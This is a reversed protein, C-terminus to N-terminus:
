AAQKTKKNTVPLPKKSSVTVTVVPKAAELAKALAADREEQKNDTDERNELDIFGQAIKKIATDIMSETTNPVISLVQTEGNGLTKGILLTWEDGTTLTTLGTKPVIALPETLAQGLMENVVSVHSELKAQKQLTETTKGKQRTVEEMGGFSKVWEVFGEATIGSSIAVSLVRSYDSLRRRECNFVYRVILNIIKTGRKEQYGRKALCAKIQALVEKEARTGKIEMYITLCDAMLIYLTARASDYEPQWDKRKAFLSDLKEIVSTVVMEKEIEKM